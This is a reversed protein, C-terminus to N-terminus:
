KHEYRCCAKEGYLRKWVKYPCDLMTPEGKISLTHFSTYPKAHACTGCREGKWQETQEVPKRLPKKM